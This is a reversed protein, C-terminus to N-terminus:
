FSMLPGKEGNKKEVDKKKSKRKQLSKIKRMYSSRYCIFRDKNGRFVFQGHSRIKDVAEKLHTYFKDRIKKMTEPEMREKTAGALLEAMEKSTQLAKDLLSMDFRITELLQPYAKGLNGLDNLDQIMDPHTRGKSIERVTAMLSPHERFAFRFNRLLRDRLDYALPSRQNWELSLPKTTNHQTQWRAEAEILAGCRSPLDEVLDWSLGSDVLVVKDELAWQYLDNAEQIFVSVPIHHPIKIRSDAMRNIVDLKKEYDELNGM